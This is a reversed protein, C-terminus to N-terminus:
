NGAKPRQDRMSMLRATEKCTRCDCDKRAVDARHGCNRCYAAMKFERAKTVDNLEYCWSCSVRHSM